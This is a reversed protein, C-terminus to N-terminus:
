LVSMFVKGPCTQTPVGAARVRYYHKEERRMCWRCISELVQICQTVCQSVDPAGGRFKSSKFLALEWTNGTDVSLSELINEAYTASYKARENNCIYKWHQQKTNVLQPKRM